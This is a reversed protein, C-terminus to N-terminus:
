IVVLFINKNQMRKRFLLTLLVNLYRKYTAGDATLALPHLFGTQLMHTTLFHNILQRVSSAFYPRMKPVFHKSHNLNGVEGGAKFILFVEREYHVEPNRSKTVSYAARALNRGAKQDRSVLYKKEEKEKRVEEEKDLHKKTSFHHKLHSKLNRFERPHITGHVDQHGACKFEAECLICQLISKDELHKFGFQEFDKVNTVDRLDPGSVSDKDECDSVTVTNGDRRQFLSNLSAQSQPANGLRALIKDQNQLVKESNKLVKQLVDQNFDGAGVPAVQELEPREISGSSSLTNGDRRLFLSIESEEEQTDESVEKSRCQRTETTGARRLFPSDPASPETDQDTELVGIAIGSDGSSHRPKHSVSADAGGSESETEAERKRKQNFFLKSITVPKPGKGRPDKSNEDPHYRILHREYNKLLIENEFDCARCIVKREQSGTSSM